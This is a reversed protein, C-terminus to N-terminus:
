GPPRRCNAANHRFRDPNTAKCAGPPGSPRASLRPWGVPVSAVTEPEIQRKPSRLVGDRWLRFHRLDPFAFHM